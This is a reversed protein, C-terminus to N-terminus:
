HKREYFVAAGQIETISPARNTSTSRPASFHRYYIEAVWDLIYIIAALFRWMM